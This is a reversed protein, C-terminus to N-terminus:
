LFDEVSVFFISSESATKREDLLILGPVVVEEEEDM